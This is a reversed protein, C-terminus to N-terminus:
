IKRAVLTLHHAFVALPTALLVRNAIRLAPYFPNVIQHPHNILMDCRARHVIHFDNGLLQELRRFTWLYEHSEMGMKRAIFETYSTRQPLQFVYFMGAPKLVRRIEAMIRPIESPPIHELVAYSFVVDFTSDPYPITQGDYFQFRVGAHANIQAWVDRMSEERSRIHAEAKGRLFGDLSKDEVTELGTVDYGMRALLYSELGIGCGFDLVCRPPPTNRKVVALDAEVNALHCRSSYARFCKRLFALDELTVKSRLEQWLEAISRQM